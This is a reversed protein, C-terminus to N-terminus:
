SLTCTMLVIRDISRLKNTNNEAYALRTEDTRLGILLAASLSRIVAFITNGRSRNHNTQIAVLLAAGNM